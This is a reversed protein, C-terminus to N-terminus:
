VRGDGQAKWGASGEIYNSRRCASLEQVIRNALVVPMPMLQPTEDCAYGIMVGQDRPVKSVMWKITMGERKKKPNGSRM